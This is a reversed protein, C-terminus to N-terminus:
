PHHTQACINGVYKHKYPVGYWPQIPDSSPPTDSKNIQIIPSLGYVHM